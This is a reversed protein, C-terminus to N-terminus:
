PTRGPPDAATSTTCQTTCTCVRAYNYTLGLYTFHMHVHMTLDATNDMAAHIDVGPTCIIAETQASDTTSLQTLHEQYMNQAEADNRQNAVHVYECM